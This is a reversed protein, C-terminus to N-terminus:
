RAPPTGYGPMEWRKPEPPGLGDLPWLRLRWVDGPKTSGPWGYNVFGRGSAELVYHGAPIAFDVSNLTPSVLTILGRKDVDMRDESVQQWLDRDTPPRADWIEVDVATEFNNQHPSLILVTGCNGSSPPKAEAQALLELTDTDRISGTVTFQGYDIALTLRHNTLRHAAIQIM